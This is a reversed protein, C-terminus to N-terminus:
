NGKRLEALKAVIREYAVSPDSLAEVTQEMPCIGTGTRNVVYPVEAVYEVQIGKSRLFDKGATSIVIAYVSTIGALAFLMAAAKGVVKDAVSYGSLNVNNFIFDAMPAVGRKDSTIINGDKCLAITHDALTQKALQLDTM